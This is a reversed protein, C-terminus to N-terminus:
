VRSIDAQLVEQYADVLQKNVERLPFHKNFYRHGNEGLLKTYKKDMALSAIASAICHSTGEMPLGCKAEKVLRAKEGKNCTIVARSCLMAEFIKRSPLMLHDFQAPYMAYVVDGLKLIHAVKAFDIRGLFIVSDELNSRNVLCKLHDTYPGDGAIVVKVNELRFKERVIKIARIIEEVKREKSITGCYIVVFDKSSLHLEERLSETSSNFVGNFLELSPLNPYIVTKIKSNSKEYLASITYWWPIIMDVFNTLLREIKVLVSSAAPGVMRRFWLPYYEYVDYVIRSGFLFKWLVGIPLMQAHSCHLCLPIKRYNRRLVYAVKVYLILYNLVRKIFGNLSTPPKNRLTMNIRYTVEKPKRSCFPSVDIVDINFRKSILTYEQQARPSGEYPGPFLLVIKRM